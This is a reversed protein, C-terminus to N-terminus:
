TRPHYNHDSILLSPLLKPIKHFGRGSKTKMLIILIQSVNQIIM